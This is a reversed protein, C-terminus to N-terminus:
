QQNQDDNRISALKILVYSLAFLVINAFWLLGLQVMADGFDFRPSLFGMKIIQFCIFYDAVVVVTMIIGVLVKALFEVTLWAAVVIISASFITLIGCGWKQWTSLSDSKSVLWAFVFLFALGLIMSGFGKALMFIWKPDGNDLAVTFADRDSEEVLVPMIALILKKIISWSRIRMIHLFRKLKIGFEQHNDTNM